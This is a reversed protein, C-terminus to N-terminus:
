RSAEVMTHPRAAAEPAPVTETAPLVGPGHNRFHRHSRWLAWPGLLTGVVETALLRLPYTSKRRVRQWVRTALSIPLELCVRNLARRDRYRAWTILHYAIHGKSYAM